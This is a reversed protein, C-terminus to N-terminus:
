GDSRFRAALAKLSRHLAVRVAVESMGLKSATELASCGELAISQVINRQQPSLEGLMRGVDAADTDDGVSSSQLSDIVTEIQIEERQGRRRFTDVLKNRTIAAVWPALQTQPDWTNRKLHLALLIEQVVDEAEAPTSGLRQLRSRVIVRLGLSLSALLRRYSQEDGRLAARMLQTWEHERQQRDV